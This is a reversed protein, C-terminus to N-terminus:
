TKRELRIGFTPEISSIAGTTITFNRPNPGMKIAYIEIQEPRKGQNWLYTDHGTIWKYVKNAEQKNKEGLIVLCYPFDKRTLEKILVKPGVSWAHSYRRPNEIEHIIINRARPNYVVQSLTHIWTEQFTKQLFKRVKEILEKHKGDRNQYLTKCMAHIVPACAATYANPEANATYHAYAEQTTAPLLEKALDCIRGRDLYRVGAIRYGDEIEFINFDFESAMLEEVTPIHVHKM